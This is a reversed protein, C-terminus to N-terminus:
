KDILGFTRFKFKEAKELNFIEEFAAKLEAKAEPTWIPTPTLGKARMRCPCEPDNGIPGMCACPNM